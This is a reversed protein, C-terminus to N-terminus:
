SSSNGEVKRSRMAVGTFKLQIMILDSFTSPFEDEYVRRTSTVNLKPGCPPAVEFPPPNGLTLTMSQQQCQMSLLSCVSPHTLGYHFHAIRTCECRFLKSMCNKKAFLLKTRDDTFIPM